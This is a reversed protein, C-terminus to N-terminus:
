KANGGRGRYILVDKAKFAGDPKSPISPNESDFGGTNEDLESNAM